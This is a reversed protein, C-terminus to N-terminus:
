RGSRVARAFYGNQRDLNSVSGNLFNVFWAFFPRGALSSSSWYGSAQTPGFAPDMCPSGASCGSATLEIITQLEAINPIRWDCHNAFCTSNGDASADSNLTALFTTYLSGDPATGSSSWAYVNNLCTVEGGCTSTKLEWMLGTQNDTLTGDGNVNFRPQCVLAGQILEVYTAPATCSPVGTGNAGAPGAPGTAGAPGAPGQAGAPGMAGAAGAPGAPGPAGTNGTPGAPGTAGTAGTLGTPGTAGTPGNAGIDVAFVTPLQNKFTVTLFYTGPTFSLPARGSPFSAVVQTGSSTSANGQTPFTLADLTVAPSSGFNQGSITLTNHAYDVTASIVIPLGAAEVRAEILGSLALGLAILRLLDNM